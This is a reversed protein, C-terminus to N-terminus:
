RIPTITAPTENEEDSDAYLNLKKAELELWARFMKPTDAPSSLVYDLGKHDILDGLANCASDPPHEGYRNGAMYYLASEKLRRNGYRRVEAVTQPDREEVIWFQLQLYHEDFLGRLMEEEPGSRAFEQEMAFFLRECPSQPKPAPRSKM